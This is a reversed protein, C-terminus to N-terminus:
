DFFVSLFECAGYVGYWMNVHSSLARATPNPVPPIASRDGPRPPSVGGERHRARHNVVLNRSEVLVNIQM